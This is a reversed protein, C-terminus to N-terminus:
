RDMLGDNEAKLADLLKRLSEPQTYGAICIASRNIAVNQRANVLNKKHSEGVVIFCIVHM